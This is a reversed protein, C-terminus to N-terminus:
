SLHLSESQITVLKATFTLLHFLHESASFFAIVVYVYTPRSIARGIFLLLLPVYLVAFIVAGARSDIGYAKAFNYGPPANSM